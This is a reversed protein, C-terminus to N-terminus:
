VLNLFVLISNSKRAIVSVKVYEKATDKNVSNVSTIIEAASASNYYSLITTFLIVLAIFSIVKYSIKKLPCDYSITEFSM